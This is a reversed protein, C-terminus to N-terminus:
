VLTALAALVEDALRYGIHRAGSIGGPHVMDARRYGRYESHPHVPQQGAVPRAASNIIRRANASIRDIRQAAAWRDTAGRSFGGYAGLGLSM